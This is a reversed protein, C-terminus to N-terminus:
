QVLVQEARFDGLELSVVQGRRVRRAPNAFLVFYVGDSRISTSTQRLRGLKPATPVFLETGDELVLRPQVSRSLLPVAAQPDIVQFRLDLLYGGASTRLGVIQIGLRREFPSLERGPEVLQPRRARANAVVAARLAQASPSPAPNEAPWLMGFSLTALVVALPLRLARTLPGRARAGLGRPTLWGARM